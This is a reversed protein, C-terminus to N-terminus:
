WSPSAKLEPDDMEEFLIESNGLIVALLNNFDHAVGGTLHGLSEMKQAQRLQSALHQRETEDSLIGVSNAVNGGADHIPSITLATGFRHRGQPLDPGLRSLRSTRTWRRM